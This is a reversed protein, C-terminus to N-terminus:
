PLIRRILSMLLIRRKNVSQWNNMLAQEGVEGPESKGTSFLSVDLGVWITTRMNSRADIDIVRVGASNGVKVGTAVAVCVAVAKGVGIGGM